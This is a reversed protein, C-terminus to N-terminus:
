DGWGGMRGGKKGNMIRGDSWGDLRGETCGEMWWPGDRSRGHVNVEQRGNNVSCGLRPGQQDWGSSLSWPRARSYRHSYNIERTLRLCPGPLALLLYLSSPLSFSLIAIRQQLAQGTHTRTHAHTNTGAHTHPGSLM